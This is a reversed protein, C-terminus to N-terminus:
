IEGIFGRQTFGLFLFLQMVENLLSVGSLVTCSIDYIYIYIYIYMCLTGHKLATTSLWYKRM